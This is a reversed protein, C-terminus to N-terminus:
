VIEIKKNPQFHKQAVDTAIISGFFLENEFVDYGDYLMFSGLYLVKLEISFTGQTEILKLM